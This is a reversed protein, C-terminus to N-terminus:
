PWNAWSRHHLLKNMAAFYVLPTAAFHFGAFGAARFKAFSNSSPRSHIACDPALAIGLIPCPANGAHLGPIRKALKQLSIGARHIERSYRLRKPTPLTSSARCFFAGQSM